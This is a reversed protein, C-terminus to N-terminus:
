VLVVKTEGGMDHLTRRDERFIFVASIFGILNFILGRVFHAGFSPPGGDKRVVKIDLWKKGLTQGTQILKITQFLWVGFSLLIGLLAPWVVPREPSALTGAIAMGVLAPGYELLLDIIRAGFRAGRGALPLQPQELGANVDSRPSAYPNASDM